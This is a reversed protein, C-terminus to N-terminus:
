KELKKIKNELILIRSYMREVLIKLEEKTGSCNMCSRLLKSDSDKQRKTEFDTQAQLEPKLNENWDTVLVSELPISGPYPDGNDDLAMQLSAHTKIPMGNGDLAHTVNNVGARKCLKIWYNNIDLSEIDVM